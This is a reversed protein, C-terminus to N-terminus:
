RNRISKPRHFIAIDCELMENPNRTGNIFSISFIQNVNNCKMGTSAVVGWRLMNEGNALKASVIVFIPRCQIANTEIDLHFERHSNASHTGPMRPLHIHIFFVYYKNYTFQYTGSRNIGIENYNLRLYTM